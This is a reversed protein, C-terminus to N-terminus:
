LGVNACINSFFWKAQFTTKPFGIAPSTSDKSIRGDIDVALYDCHQDAVFPKNEPRAQPLHQIGGGGYGGCAVSSPAM